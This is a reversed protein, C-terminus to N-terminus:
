PRSLGPTDPGGHDPGGASAGPEEPAAQRALQFMLWGGILDFAGIGLVFWTLVGTDGALWRQLGFVTLVLGIIVYLWGRRRLTRPSRRPDPQAPAAGPATADTAGDAGGEGAGTAGFGAGGPGAGDGAGAAYGETMGGSGPGAGEAGLRRTLERGAQDDFTGDFTSGTQNDYAQYGTEDAVIAVTRRVLDHFAPLDERGWYPFSVSASRDYLEVQMGSDLATLEGVVDGDTEEAVWVEVPETLQERLRAEIRRFTAVGSDLQARDMEPGEQQDAEIVSDWDQGPTRPYLSIDYSM